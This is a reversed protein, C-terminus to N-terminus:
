QNRHDGEEADLQAIQHGSRDDGLVDVVHLADPEVQRQRDFLLVPRGHDADDADQDDDEQDRVEDHIQEVRDQVRPDPVRSAGVSCSRTGATAMSSPRAIVSKSVSAAFSSGLALGPMSPSKLVGPWGFPRPSLLLGRLRADSAHRSRRRLGINQIAATSANSNMTIASNGLQNVLALGFAQSSDLLMLSGLLLAM